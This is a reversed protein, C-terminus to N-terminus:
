KRVVPQQVGAAPRALPVDLPATATPKKNIAAARDSRIPLRDLMQLLARRKAERRRSILLPIEKGLFCKAALAAHIWVPPSSFAPEQPHKKSRPRGPMAAFVVANIKAAATGVLM